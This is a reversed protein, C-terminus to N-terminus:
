RTNVPLRQPSRTCRERCLAVARLGMAYDVRGFYVASTDCDDTIEIVEDDSDLVTVESSCLVHEAMGHWRNDEKLLPSSSQVAVKLIQRTIPQSFIIQNMLFMLCSKESQPTQVCRTAATFTFSVNQM